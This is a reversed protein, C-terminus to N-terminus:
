SYELLTTCYLPPPSYHRLHLMLVFAKALVLPQSLTIICSQSCGAMASASSKVSCSASLTSFVLAHFWRTIAHKSEAKVMSVVAVILLAALPHSGCQLFFIVFVIDNQQQINLMAKCCTLDAQFMFVMQQPYTSQLDDVFPQSFNAYDIGFVLVVHDRV